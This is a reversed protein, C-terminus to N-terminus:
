TLTQKRRWDFLDRWEKTPCMHRPPPHLPHPSSPSTQTSTHGWPRWNKVRPRILVFITWNAVRNSVLLSLKKVRIWKTERVSNLLEFVTMVDHFLTKPFFVFWSILCFCVFLFCCRQQSSSLICITCIQMNPLIGTTNCLWLDDWPPSSCGGGLDAWATKKRKMPRFAVVHGIM